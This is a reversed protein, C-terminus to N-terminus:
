RRSRRRRSKRRKKKPFWNSGTLSRPLPVSPGVPLDPFWGWGMRDLGPSTGTEFLWGKLGNRLLMRQRATMRSYGPVNRLENDITRDIRANARKAHKIGGGIWPLRDVRELAHRYKNRVWASGWKKPGYGASRGERTLNYRMWTTNWGRGERKFTRRRRGSTPGYTSGTFSGYLSGAGPEHLGGGYFPM